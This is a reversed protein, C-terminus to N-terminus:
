HSPPPPTESGAPPRLGPPSVGRALVVSLAVLLWFWAATKPVFLLSNVQDQLFFATAAGSIGAALLRAERDVSWLSVLWMRGLALLVLGLLVLGAPLGAHAAALLTSNHPTALAVGYPTYQYRASGRLLRGYNGDGVGFLPHDSVVRVGAAYLATRNSELSTLRDKLRPVLVVSGAAVLAFVLVLWGRRTLLAVVVLGVGLGVFSARSYSVGIGAVCAGLAALYLARGWLRRAQLAMAGCLVGACMLYASLFNAAVPTGGEWSGGAAFTGHVRKLTSWMPTPAMGIGFPGTYDTAYAFLCFASQVVAAVIVVRLLRRVDDRGDLVGAVTTLMAAHFLFRGFGRATSRLLEADTGGSGLTAGLNLLAVIMLGYTVVEFRPRGGFLRWVLGLGVVVVPLLDDLSLPTHPLEVFPVFVFWPFLWIVAARVLPRLRAGIAPPAGPHELGVAALTRM